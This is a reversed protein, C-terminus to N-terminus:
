GVFSDVFRMLITAVQARTASGSPSLTTETVGTILGEASAWGMAAEAWTSVSEADSYDSLDGEASIDYGQYEAYRYLIAAMQERTINDNTGFLGNDYGTVIGNQNAWIIADTYWQGNEVDAFTNTGSVSPSGALRYLVTVLMARTMAADPSFKDGGTGEFLGHTVAFLVADYYWADKAVDAFVINAVTKDDVGAASGEGDNGNGASSNDGSPPNVPNGPGIPTNGSVTVSVTNATSDYVDKGSPMNIKYDTSEIASTGSALVKLDFTCMTLAGNMTKGNGSYDIYSVIVKEHIGDSMSRMSVDLTPFAKSVSGDVLEFYRNDYRIEDQMSYLLYDANEDTRNLALSVTITDGVNASTDSASLVLAYTMDGAASAAPLVGLLLAVTLTLTLLFSLTKKM